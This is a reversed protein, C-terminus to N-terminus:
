PLWRSATLGGAAGRRLLGSAVPGVVFSPRAHLDPGSRRVRQSGREVAGTGVEGQEALDGLGDLQAQEVVLPDLLPDRQHLPVGKDPV